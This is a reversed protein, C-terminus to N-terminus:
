LVIIYFVYRLVSLQGSEASEHVPAKLSDIHIEEGKCWMRLPHDGVAEDARIGQRMLSVALDVHGFHALLQFMM